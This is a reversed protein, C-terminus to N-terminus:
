QRHQTVLGPTNLMWELTSLSCLPAGQSKLALLTSCGQPNTKM